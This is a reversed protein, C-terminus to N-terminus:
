DESEAAIFDRYLDLMRAKSLFGLYIRDRTIVPMNFNRTRNFKEIVEEGSDTDYVFEEPEIMLDEVLVQNYLERKFIIDRHDDMVLLGAFKCNEDLVVFLNRKSQAIYKTYEGLTSHIPLTMINKDIIRNWNIKRLAFKDKNHTRLHGKVALKRTYVSYKEIPSVCLYSILSTIMLPILLSYGSSIEAILFISTLPALMVGSMVGAMGALVYNVYPLNFGFYCNSVEAVLYGAFAGVFLTPAFVGGIGGASTTVSTAIVKLFIVLVLFVVLMWHNGSILALPSKEFLLSVNGQLLTNISEYGEGFLVPLLLILLGLSVGGLAIKLWTHKLKIFLGEITRTLRLFYISVFGTFVGLLMYFPINKMFFSQQQWLEFTVTDGLFLISLVTGTAASILLPLLAASTLDLMLVELAFVIAMIPAKFIAAVAATSGCALLLRTNKVNLNFFRATNSGIASGTLVMPAELGVSGGFGVTLTSAVVSSYMNHRRLRGGSKFISKLVITVGHSLNDRVVYHTYLVTLIIGTIPFALYFYHVEAHPFTTVLFSVTLHMLNKVIIAATAGFIGVFFSLLLMTPKEGLKQKIFRRIKALVSLLIRNQAM